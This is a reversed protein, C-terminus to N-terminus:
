SNTVAIVTAGVQKGYRAVGNPVPNIGSNSIVFLLDGSAINYAQMFAEAYNELREAFGNTPEEILMVSALGGARWYLEGAIYRSHGSGFTYALKDDLISQAWLEAIKGMQDQQTELVNNLQEIVAAYYTKIGDTKSVLM